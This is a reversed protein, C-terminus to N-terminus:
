ADPVREWEDPFLYYRVFDIGNLAVLLTRKGWTDVDDTVYADAVTGDDYGYDIDRTCNLRITQLRTKM